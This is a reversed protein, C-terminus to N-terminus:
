VPESAELKVEYKEKELKQEFDELVEKVIESLDVEEFELDLRGTTIVSVQLLDNIMRSLRKTQNETNKLMTLLHEVSFQALSVSRINHLATQIQLLMSTLPTKLEHSAISLFEDRSQIEELAKAYKNELDSLRHTYEKERKRHEIVNDRRKGTDIFFCIFFGELLFLLLQIITTFSKPEYTNYPPLFFYYMAFAVMGTTLLGPNIGGYWASLIIAPFLVLGPTAKGMMPDFVLTILLALLSILIAFLYVFFANILKQKPMSSIYKVMNSSILITQRFIKIM